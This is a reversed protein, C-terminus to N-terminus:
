YLVFFSCLKIPLDSNTSDFPMHLGAADPNSDQKEQIFRDGGNMYGGKNQATVSQRPPKKATTFSRQLLWRAFLYISL